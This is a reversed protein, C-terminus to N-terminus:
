LPLMIISIVLMQQWKDFNGADAAVGGLAATFTFEVNPMLYTNPQNPLTFRVTSGPNNVDNEAPSVHFTKKAEISAPRDGGILQSPVGVREMAGVNMEASFDTMQILYISFFFNRKGTM